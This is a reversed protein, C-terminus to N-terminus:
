KLRNQLRKKREARRRERQRRQWLELCAVAAALVAAGLLLWAWLPVSRPPAVDGAAPLTQGASEELLADLGAVTLPVAFACDEQAGGGSVTVTAQPLAGGLTYVADADSFSVASETLSEALLVSVGEARIPLQGLEAGGGSVTVQGLETDPLTVRRFNEFTHQLLMGVDAYREVKSQTKMVTCILRVGDKEALCAYTYRAINTYGIKSGVIEPIYHSSNPMRMYDQLWFARQSPQLNTPEMIYTDSRSFLTLFGPQELAWRLIVALDGASIYHGEESIGHPNAFHTHALGLEAAKDNMVQVGGEISGGLYEALVNCADNASAMAAAYLLDQLSVVEGEQLAVHSSDTGYLSHVDEHSVTLQVTWDGQAKECALGLTMIKTVSAPALEEDPNRALLVQGTDADMVVYAESAVSVPGTAAAAPLAFGAALALAALLFLLKKM